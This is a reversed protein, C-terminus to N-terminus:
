ERAFRTLPGSSPSVSGRCDYRGSGNPCRLPAIRCAAGQRLGMFAALQTRERLSLVWLPISTLRSASWFSQAVSNGDRESCAHCGGFQHVVGARSYWPEYRGPVDSRCVLWSENIYRSYQVSGLLSHNTRQTQAGLRREGCHALKSYNPGSLRRRWVCRRRIRLSM